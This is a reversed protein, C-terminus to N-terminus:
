TSNGLKITTERTSVLGGPRFIMVAVMVAGFFLMRYEAFARSLEPVLVLLIGAVIIGAQSGMGGLVVIALIIATEMFEFSKPSIYGQKAAFFCGVMGAVAAGIMYASLKVRAINIGLSRCAIEDERMAEWVRGLPLVRLRRSLWYVFVALGIMILYMFILRQETSYAIGVAKNFGGEKFELGLLTPRPIGGIGNPGGTLSSWNLLTIRVIEAFALTVIALYDGRLRLIPMGVIGAALAAFAASVPLMPWFGIGTNTSIIAYSYAGIAYFAVYGLDLLGAYGVTINLGWALVIYILVMTALDIVGREFVFPLAIAAALVALMVTLRPRIKGGEFLLRAIFIGAVGYLVYQWRYTIIEKGLVIGVLPLALLFAVVAALSASKFASLM